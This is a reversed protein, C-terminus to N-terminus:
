DTNTSVLSVFNHRLAHPNVPKEINTREKLKSMAKQPLHRSTPTTPDAKNYKGKSCIVYHEPEPDPHYENIWRAVSAQALLLPRTDGNEDAGKLGDVNPNLRYRGNGIDIDKIRLTRIAYSRQGTYMFLDFIAKDRPHDCADRLDHIEEKTLMDEPRIKTDEQKVTAIDTREVGFDHYEHFVRLTDQYKRVTNKALGREKLM